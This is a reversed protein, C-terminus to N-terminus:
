KKEIIVSCVNSGKAITDGLTFTFKPFTAIIGRDGEMAIDCLLPLDKEDAGLKQWAALLPCYHFEMEFKKDSKEKIDIEFMKKINETAFGDAFKILDEKDSFKSDGHFCGCRFVAKRAFDDWSLGSKRAEDLLLYFWTARHEVAARLDNIEKENLTPVNKIEMM